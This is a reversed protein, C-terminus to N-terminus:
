YWIIKDTWNPFNRSTYLLCTYSMPGITRRTRTTTIAAEGAPIIVGTLTIARDRICMERNIGSYQLMDSFVDAISSVNGQTYYSYQHNLDQLRNYGQRKYVDVTAGIRRTRLHHPETM